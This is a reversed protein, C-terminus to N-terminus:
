FQHIERPYTVGWIGTVSQDQKQVLCAYSALREKSKFRSIGDIESM